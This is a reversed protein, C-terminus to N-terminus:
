EWSKIDDATGERGDPGFSMVAVHQAGAPLNQGCMMKYPNGWPDKTDKNNMYENLDDIKDPCGKDSHQMSWQVFAEDAYKNVAMKAIKKKSDDYQKMEAPSRAICDGVTKKDTADAMCGRLDASWKAETCAKVLDKRSDAAAFDAFHKGLQDAMEDCTPSPKGCAALALAIAILKVM